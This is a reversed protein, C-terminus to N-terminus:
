GQDAKGDPIYLGDSFGSHLDQAQDPRDLLLNGAPHQGSDLSEQRGQEPLGPLFFGQGARFIVRYELFAIDDDYLCVRCLDPFEDAPALGHQDSIGSLGAM